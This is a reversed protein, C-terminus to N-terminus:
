GKYIAWGPESALEELADAHKQYFESYGPGMIEYEYTNANYKITCRPFKKRMLECIENDFADHDFETKVFPKNNEFVFTNFQLIFVAYERHWTSERQIKLVNVGKFQGLTELATLLKDAEVAVDVM